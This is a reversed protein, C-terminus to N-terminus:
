SKLKLIKFRIIILRKQYHKKKPIKLLRL